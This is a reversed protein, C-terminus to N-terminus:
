LEAPTVAPLVQVFDVNEREILVEGDVKVPPKAPQLLTAHKLALVEGRDEILAGQIAGGTKLNVIVTSAYRVRRYARM